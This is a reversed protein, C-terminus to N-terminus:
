YRLKRIKLKKFKLVTGVGKPEKETMGKRRKETKM